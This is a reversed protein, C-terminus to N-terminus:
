YLRLNLLQLSEELRPEYTKNEVHKIHISDFPLFNSGVVRYGCSTLFLLLVFVMGKSLLQTLGDKHRFINNRM